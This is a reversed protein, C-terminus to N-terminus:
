NCIYKSRTKKNIKKRGNKHNAKNISNTNKAPIDIKIDQRRVHDVRAGIVIWLVHAITQPPKKEKGGEILKFLIEIDVTGGM